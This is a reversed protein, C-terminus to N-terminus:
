AVLEAKFGAGYPGTLFRALCNKAGVVHANDAYGCKRCLFQDMSARNGRETHGCAPCRQSTFAPPVSRFSVRNWECAMRLRNLWYRYCWAGLSRRMNKTVRRTVKTRHNVKKLGEVVILRPALHMIDRATEDMRQRLARRLRKQRKSGHKCRKIDAILKGTGQGFCRGDSLVALPEINTDLGYLPGTRRKEGTEIEFAFQVYNRTIIYSELRKATPHQALKHWHKHFRIPLDLSVKEGICRLELWADFETANDAPRLRAITSSVCMRQGRHVPKVAKDGDRKKASLIMDIAERAAVKRLRASLWTTPTDVIPKLLESKSPLRGNWFMDIFHNVVRSYEDLARSLIKRKAKTTFKLSCKTSRIIKM